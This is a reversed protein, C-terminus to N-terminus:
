ESESHKGFIKRWMGGFLSQLGGNTSHAIEGRKIAAKELLGMAVAFRPSSVLEYHKGRYRPYGIRAPMELKESAIKVMGPLLSGDGVLVAGAPMRFGEKKVESIKQGVMGLIEDIRHAITDRVVPISQRSEGGGTELLSVFEGEEGELGITKKAQEASALSAHHMEAIDRHADGSALPLSFTGVLVGGAFVAIDTTADGIDVVCVGLKKEDETLVSHAAAQAAFVFQDETEMGCRLMCKEWDALANVSALILHMEGSLKHGSMGLPEQVGQHGDLEYERDLTAIVRMGSMNAVEARAMEKVKHIDSVSVGSAFDGIVTSGNKNVGLIRAGTIAAWASTIKCHSMMDAAKAAKSLTEIAKEMNVVRGERIGKSEEEGVGLLRIGQQATLEAVLVRVANSGFDVAAVTGTIESGSKM